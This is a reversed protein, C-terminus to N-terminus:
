FTFIYLLFDFIYFLLDFICFDFIYFQQRTQAETISVLIDSYLGFSFPPHGPRYHFFRKHSFSLCINRTRYSYITEMRAQSRWINTCIPFFICLNQPIFFLVVKFMIAKVHRRWTLFQESPLAFPCREGAGFWLSIM